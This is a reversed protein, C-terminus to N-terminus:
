IRPTPSATPRQDVSEPRARNMVQEIATLLDDGAIPKRLYAAVGATIYRAKAERADDATYVINPIGLGSDVLHRQVDLGTMHPMHADLLLCDPRAADNALADVFERGSAYVTTRLGLSVCLRRLGTRVSEEDDIIVISIPQAIMPDYNM